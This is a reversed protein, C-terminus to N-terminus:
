FITEHLREPDHVSYLTHTSSLYNVVVYSTKQEVGASVATLSTKTYYNVKMDKTYLRIQSKSIVILGWDKTSHLEAFFM